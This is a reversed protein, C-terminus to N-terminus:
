KIKKVWYRCSFRGCTLYFYHWRNPHVCRGRKSFIRFKIYYNCRKCKENSVKM